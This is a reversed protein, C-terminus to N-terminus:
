SADRTVRGQLRNRGCRTDPPTEPFSPAVPDDIALGIETRVVM